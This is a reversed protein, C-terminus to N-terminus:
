LSEGRGGVGFNWDKSFKISTWKDFAFIFTMTESARRNGTIEGRRNEAGLRAHSASPRSVLPRGRLSFRGTAILRQQRCGRHSSLPETAFKAFKELIHVLIFRFSPWGGGSWRTPHEHCRCAPRMCRTGESPRRRSLPRQKRPPRGCISRTGSSAAATGGGDVGAAHTSTIGSQM